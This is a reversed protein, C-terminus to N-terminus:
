KEHKINKMKTRELCRWSTRDMIVGKRLDVTDVLNKRTPHDTRPASKTEKTAHVGAARAADPDGVLVGVAVSVGFNVFVLVGVLVGVGVPLVAVGVWVGVRVKVFVGM